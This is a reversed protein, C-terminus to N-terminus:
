YSKQTLYGSDGCIQTFTIINNIHIDFFFLQLSIDVKCSMPPRLSWVVFQFLNRMGKVVWISKTLLKIDESLLKTNKEGDWMRHTSRFDLLKVILSEIWESDIISLQAVYKKRIKLQYNFFLELRAFSYHVDIIQLRNLKENPFTRM